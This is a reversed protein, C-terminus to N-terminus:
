KRKDIIIRAVKGWPPTQEENNILWLVPIGKSMRENPYPAEGDTLIILHSIQSSDLNNVYNFVSFFDTGGGGVPAIKEIDEVSDFDIVKRVDIDFFGLKGSLKGKFQEIAGNIESFAVTLAEVDISASTDVMFLVDKVATDSENFDPLFFESESFRKDVPLFSYDCVEESLVENLIARWDLQSKKLKSIKLNLLDNEFDAGKGGSKKVANFAFEVRKEWKRKNEDPQTEITLQEGVDINSLLKQEKEGELFAGVGEKNKPKNSFDEKNSFFSEDIEKEADILIEGFQGYDFHEDWREDSDFLIRKKDQPSFSEVNYFLSFYIDLPKIIDPNYEAGLSFLRGLHPYNKEAGDDNLLKRNIIMDCAHHYNADAYVKDRWIDGNIVHYLQHLLVFDVEKARLKQLFEPNIFICNENVSVTSINSDIVVKLCMLLLAYVPRFLLIRARSNYVIQKLKERKQETM